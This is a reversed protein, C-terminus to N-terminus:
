YKKFWRMGNDCQYLEEEVTSVNIVFEPLFSALEKTIIQEKRERSIGTYYCSHLYKQTEQDDRAHFMSSIYAYPFGGIIMAIVFAWIPHNEAFDGIWKLM